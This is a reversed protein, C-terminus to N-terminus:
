KKKGGLLDNMRQEYEDMVRGCGQTQAFPLRAMVGRGMSKGGEIVYVESVVKKGLAKNVYSAIKGIQKKMAKMDVKRKKDVPAPYKSFYYLIAEAARPARQCVFSVDGAKPVTMIPTLPRIKTTYGGPKSQVSAMIHKLQIHSDDGLITAQAPASLSLSAFLSILATTLITRM